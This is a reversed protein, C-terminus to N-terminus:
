KRLTSAANKSTLNKSTIREMYDQIYAKCHKILQLHKKDKKNLINNKLGLDEIHYIGRINEGDFSVIFEGESYFFLGDRGTIIRPTRNTNLLSNGWSRFPQDYGIIDAITPFIDIQQALSMNKGQFRHHPDYLIFPVAFTNLMKYYEETYFSQNTHDATIMFITNKFWEEQSSKAFFKRLADDTYGVCEHLPIKGKPYYNEYEKPLDYPHHSSLTFVHAFFPQKERDLDRKMFQLFPEDWIGWINDHDYCDKCNDEDNEYYETKGHYEDFGLINAFGNFGMSGNEAGHFFKTKYGEKNLISVVSEIEQNVFPSSTFADKFSPIGALVSGMAHISKMGNAFTNPFILSHNALSDLFPTYSQYNPIQKHENFSGLFERSLSEVMILVINPKNLDNSDKPIQLTRPVIKEVTEQPLYNKKQIGNKNFTRIFVFPTNLVAVANKPYNVYGNADVVTIPRTSHNLDGRIFYLFTLIFVVLWTLSFGFYPLWKKPKSHILNKKRFLKVWGWIFLFALVFLYWFDGFFTLFFGWFNSENEAVELATKTLRGNNFQYYAIDIFNLLLGIINPIFYLLALFKQYWLHRNIGFPLLSFLMFAINLFALTAFDFVNGFFVIKVFTLFNPIELIDFNFVIFLLRSAFLVAWALVLRYLLVKIEALRLHEM